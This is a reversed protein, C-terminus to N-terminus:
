KIKSVIAIAAIILTVATIVAGWLERRTVFNAAQDKLQARFENQSDFKAQNTKEVKDVAERVSKIEADTYKKLWKIQNNTYNKNMLKKM